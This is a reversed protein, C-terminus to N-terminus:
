GRARYYLAALSAGSIRYSLSSQKEFRMACLYRMTGLIDDETLQESRVAEIRLERSRSPVVKSDTHVKSM